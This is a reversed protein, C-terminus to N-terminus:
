YESIYSVSVPAELLMRSFSTISTIENIGMEWVFKSRDGLKWKKINSGIRQTAYMKDLFILRAKCIRGETGNEWIQVHAVNQINEKKM